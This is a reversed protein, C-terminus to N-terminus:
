IVWDPGNIARRLESARRGGPNLQAELDEIAEELSAIQLVWAIFLIMGLSTLFLIFLVVVIERYM